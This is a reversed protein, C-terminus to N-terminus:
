TCRRRRRRAGMYREAHLFQLLLLYFGAFAVAVWPEASSSGANELMLYFALFGLAANALPVVVLALHDWSAGSGGEERLRVLRPAWAFIM